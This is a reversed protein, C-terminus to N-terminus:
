RRGTPSCRACSRATSPRPSQPAPTASSSPSRSSQCEMPQSCRSSRTGCSGAIGAAAVVARFGRAREGRRARHRGHHLVGPRDGAVARRGRSRDRAQQAKHARLATVAQPPLALTRRSKKTKTDGTVRVSRWVEIHPPMTGAQDLHVRDWALARAEETRIGTLPSVVIYAHLRSRAAAALVADAQDM